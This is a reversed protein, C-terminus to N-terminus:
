LVAQGSEILGRRHEMCEAIRDPLKALTERDSADNFATAPIAAVVSQSQQFKKLATEWAGRDTASDRLAMGRYVDGLEFSDLAFNVSEDMNGPDRAHLSTGIAAAEKLLSLAEDLSGTQSRAVGAIRLVTELESQARFDHPDAAAAERRLVIARDLDALAQKDDRLEHLSWGLEVLDFSLDMRANPSEPQAALRQEDIQAARRNHAISAPYDGLAYYVSAIRKETLAVNRKAQPSNNEMQQIKTYESLADKWMPLAETFKKRETADFALYFHALALDRIRDRGSSTRAIDDFLSVAEHRIEPVKELGARPSLVAIDNDVLALSREVDRNEPEQKRLDLLLARAKGYSGLAGERNGVNAQELDGQAGGIKMYAQALEYTLAPDHGRSRMLANLYELGRAILLERARSSGPLDEIQDDLDFVVSHALQRVQQFRLEARQKERWIVAGSFAIGIFAMIAAAVALRNRKVFKGTRYVLTDAAAKVPFGDLFDKIDQCFADVTAYRREPEKRLAMMVIKELDPPVDKTQRRLPIPNKELIVQFAAVTTEPSGYPREGSLLEYLLVGLSYVDSAVTLPEARVQEPSAYLPTLPMGTMTELPADEALMRAVGFDLLKPVGDQTVLVNKPKLDRHIILKGHAYSVASCISIFLQLKQRVNLARERCYSDVPEGDVFEMAYYPQGAKTTGGDLLRAINPHDLQALIQRERWFLKAFKARHVGPGILKLAVFREYEGDDRKALCVVGMGGRGIERLIRYPGACAPLDEASGAKWSILNEVGSEPLLDSARENFGLLATVEGYLESDDACIEKLFRDRRDPEVQLAQDLISKVRQWRSANVSAETSM